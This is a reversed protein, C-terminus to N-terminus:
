LSALALWYILRDKGSLQLADLGGKVLNKLVM